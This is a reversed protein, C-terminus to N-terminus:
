RIESPIKRQWIDDRDKEAQAEMGAVISAAPLDQIDDLIAQYVKELEVSVQNAMDADGFSEPSDRMASKDLEEIVPNFEAEINSKFTEGLFSDGLSELDSYDTSVIPIKRVGGIIYNIDSIALTGIDESVFSKQFEPEQSFSDWELSSASGVERGPPPSFLPTTPGSISTVHPSNIPPSIPPYPPLQVQNPFRVTPSRPSFRVPSCIIGRSPPSNAQLSALQFPATDNLNEGCFLRICGTPTRPGTDLKVTM